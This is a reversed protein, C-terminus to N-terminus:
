NTPYDENGGNKELEETEKKIENNKLEGLALANKRFEEMKNIAAKIPKTIFDPIKGLVNKIDSVSSSSEAPNTQTKATQALIKQAPFLSFALLMLIIFKKFPM